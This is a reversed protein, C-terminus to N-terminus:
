SDRFQDKSVGHISHCVWIGKETLCVDLSGGLVVLVVAESSSGSVKEVQARWKVEPAKYLQVCYKQIRCPM